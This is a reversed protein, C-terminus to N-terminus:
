LHIETFFQEFREIHENKKTIPLALYGVLSHYDAFRRMERVDVFGIKQYFIRSKETLPKTIIIDPTMIAGLLFLKYGIRKERMREVTEQARLVNVVHPLEEWPEIYIFALIENKRVGIIFTPPPFKRLWIKFTEHYDVIGYLHFFTFEDAKFEDIDGPGEVLYYKLTTDEALARM